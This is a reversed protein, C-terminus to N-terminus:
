VSFVGGEWGGGPSEGRVRRKLNQQQYRLQTLAKDLKVAELLPHARERSLDRVRQAQALQATELRNLERQWAGLSALAPFDAADPKEAVHSRLANGLAALDSEGLAIAADLQQVQRTLKDLETKVRRGEARVALLQRKAEEARSQKLDAEAKHLNAQAETVTQQATQTM